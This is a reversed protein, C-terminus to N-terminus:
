SYSLVQFVILIIHCYLSRVYELPYLMVNGIISFFYLMCVTRIISAIYLAEISKFMKPVFWLALPRGLLDAFIRVFYLVAPVEVSYLNCGYTYSIFSGQLISAFITFFLTWRHTAIANAVEANSMASIALEPQKKIIQRSGKVVEERIHLSHLDREEESGLDWYNSGYLSTTSVIPVQRVAEALAGKSSTESKDRSRELDNTFKSSLRSGEEEENYEDKEFTKLLPSKTDDEKMLASSIVINGLISDKQFLKDKVITSRSILFWAFAGPVVLAACLFFFILLYSSSVTDRSLNLAVSLIVAVVAPLAFGIQQMTSADMKLMSTLNTVTGHAIWTACGIVTVIAILGIEGCFPALCMCVFLVLLCIWLRRRYTM